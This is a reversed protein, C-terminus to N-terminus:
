GLLTFVNHYYPKDIATTDTAVRWGAAVVVERARQVEGPRVVVDVDGHFRAGPAPYVFEALHFGKFVLVDIGAASWARVLPALEARIRQHRALSALYDGRLEARAPHDAPLVTYAYGALGARRLEAAPPAPVAPNLLWAELPNTM